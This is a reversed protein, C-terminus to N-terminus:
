WINVDASQLHSYRVENWDSLKVVVTNWYASHSQAEIIRWALPV